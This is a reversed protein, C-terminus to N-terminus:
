ATPQVASAPEARKTRWGELPRSTINEFESEYKPRMTGCVRDWITTYGGFNGVFYQHHQDHFTATIFWKTLWTRNWWRPLFEFGSHVYFGMLITSITVLPITAAHILSVGLLNGALLTVVLYFLPTFSGNIFAEVPNVSLSSLPTITTSFHHTKHTWTYIPEVHMLRHGWYFWTDFLFFYVAFEAGIMWWPAPAPNYLIFGHGTLYTKLAGLTFASVLINITAWMLEHRVIKWKTGKKQIRRAKFFGSVWATTLGITLLAIISWDFPDLSMAFEQLTKIM